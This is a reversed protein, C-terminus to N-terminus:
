KTGPIELLKQIHGDAYLFNLGFKEGRARHFAEKDFVLPANHADLEYNFARLQDAPQGNFLTNWFYSSGTQEFIRRDDSPCRLIQPSGLHSSLVLDITPPANSSAPLSITAGFNTMVPMRDNNEHVYIQLAVGIQRLNSLCATARAQEKAKVIAPLLLAALIAIIAIVVLLEILTFARWSGARYGSRRVGIRCSEFERACAADSHPAGYRGGSM